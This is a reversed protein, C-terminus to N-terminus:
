VSVQVPAPPLATCDAVTVTLGFCVGVTLMLAAGLVMARPALEVKDQVDLL